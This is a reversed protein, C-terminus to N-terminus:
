QSLVNAPDVSDVRLPSLKGSLGLRRREEPLPQTVMQIFRGNYRLGSPKIGRAKSRM